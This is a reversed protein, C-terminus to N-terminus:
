EDILTRANGTLQAITRTRQRLSEGRAEEIAKSIAAQDDAAKQKDFERRRAELQTQAQALQSDFGRIEQETFINPNTDRAVRARNVAAQADAYNNAQIATDAKELESNVNFTIDQKQALIQKARDDLLAGGGEDVNAGVNAQGGAGAGSLMAQMDQRGARAQENNPDVQLAQTYLQFARNYNGNTQETRAEQVLRSAETPGETAPAEATEAPQEPAAVGPAPAPEAPPAEAVPAAPAPTEVPPEAVAPTPAPAEPAAVEPADNRAVVREEAPAPAAKRIDKLYDTPKRQFAGPKYGGAQLSEFKTRAADYRKARYDTVAEAYLAKQDGQLAKRSSGAVAMQQKAKGETGSDVFKNDAAAKYHTIAEAPSNAALAAEGQEFQARAERRGSAAQEADALADGLDKRDGRSLQQPDIQQLTAVAEEYQKDKYQREGQKLLDLASGSPQAAPETPAEEVPLAEAPASDAPASEAPAAPQEVAAEQAYLPSTFGGLSPLAMSAALAIVAMRAPTLHRQSETTLSSTSADFGLRTFFM